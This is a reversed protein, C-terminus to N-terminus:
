SYEEMSLVPTGGRELEELKQWRACPIGLLQPFDAPRLILTVIYDCNDPPEEVIEGSSDRM